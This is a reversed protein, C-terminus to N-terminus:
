LDFRFTKRILRALRRGITQSGTCVKAYGTCGDALREDLCEFPVGVQFTSSAPVDGGEAQNSILAGGFRSSLAKPVSKMKTTAITDVKADITSGPIATPFLEVSQGCQVFEIESQDITLTAELSSKDPVLRGIVTGQSLYAGVNRQETPYGHWESLAGSESDPKATIAPAILHGSLPSRITLMTIDKQRQNLNSTATTLEAQAIVAEDAVEGTRDAQSARKLTELRVKAGRQNGELKALQLKLDENRLTAITQGREIRDGLSVYVSDLTGPMDVFINEANRPQVIFPCRVYHPTPILMIGALVVSVVIASIVVRSRDVTGFRGPVSFFRYAQMLPMGILGWISFMAIFQGIVKVGYPELLSYLFWFISLTIFWRYTAAAVSYIAFMWKKRTPLFPDPRSEIGMTWSALQRQLITTAKQRLNPIELLDSLIYYGDYRLLPNANFLITSVSSVFIINLALQNIIGPQSFWWVFVAFSALILEVYMGAAAIMARKWKSPLTWSDSVNCYLCPTLVLLMVGMEHCEGGFRKCALGHGFEHIVKTIAMVLALWIWNDAAFFDHFGPLKHMFLEFHTFLLGAAAVWLFLVAFFAPWTFLWRFWGDLFNLLGNPDFGRFRIALVNSLAGKFEQMSREKSRKQLEVGQGKADSVLLCSRFLMGIFQYLEQLTIKQPAFQYDFSRKIQEPTKRGDLMQLIAYEEEEFRFYKLSIPDKLVWYDRGQYTQRQATVDTRMRLNLPRSASSVISQNNQSNAM